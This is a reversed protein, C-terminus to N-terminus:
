IGSKLRLEAISRILSDSNNIYLCMDELPKKFIDEVHKRYPSIYDDTLVYTFSTIGTYGGHNGNSTLITGAINPYSYTDSSDM